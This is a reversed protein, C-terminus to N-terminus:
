KTEPGDARGVRGELLALVAAEHRSLGRVQPAAAGASGELLTGDLYSELVAPHVYCKRSVDRTNGLRRAVQDIAAVVNRKAGTETVAQRLEQLARAALVTGAWTRFDKTTFDGGAAERVYDNVDQSGVACLVGDQDLYQFLNQGPLEECRRVIRSLRKSRMTLRRERGSKARFVFRLETGRVRVHRNRLTTLGYSKNEQAYEENGVRVLTAELLRVVAALVKERPLGRRSLDRAVRRRLRPLTYAFALLREYKNSDRVERWRPHYRYQKRGRKDRGTAQLYGRASPCIWVDTWAPPIVLSRIRALTEEGRVERGEADLYVFSGGRARRRRIGPTRDSVYRLGADQAVTSSDTVAEIPLATAM